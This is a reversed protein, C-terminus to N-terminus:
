KQLLIKQTFHQDGDTVELFYVGSEKDDLFINQSNSLNEQRLVIRGLLDRVNLRFDSENEVDVNVTLLGTTPNPSVSVQNTLPNSTSLPNTLLGSRPGELVARMLQAQEATFSVQCAEVSYDMYNEWMDPLDNAGATCTNKSNNCGSIQSNEAANPTDDIGDDVICGNQGSLPDPDGWIHRLGLYHGVEHVTSRGEFTVQGGLNPDNITNDRGGFALYHMVVGDFAPDQFAEMQESPWNNIEPYDAINVPPYAYGLVQGLVLPGIALPQIKCVWINLHTETDYPSSGGNASVKLKNDDFGALLDIGFTENTEVREVAVLEFEIMPDASLPEFESRLNVIDANLARYDENLVDIQEQIQEDSINEANEKWVVHVVVPITYISRNQISSKKVNEFTNAVAAAYGPFNAEMTKMVINHGCKETHTHDQAQLNLTFLCIALFLITTHKKM